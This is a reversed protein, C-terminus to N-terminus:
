EFSAQVQRLISVAIKRGGRSSPEIPNAYDSPECCIRRLELVPLSHVGAVQYIKDNFIAVAARAANDIPARLNGNYITLVTLPSRLHLMEEILKRYDSEFNGSAHELYNLIQLAPTTTDSLLHAHSLADNGGVSLFLHSVNEPVNRLQGVVDATTDGDV